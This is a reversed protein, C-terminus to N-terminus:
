RALVRLVHPARILRTHGKRPAYGSVTRKVPHGMLRGDADIDVICYLRNDTTEIVHGVNFM